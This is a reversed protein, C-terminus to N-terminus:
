AGAWSGPSGKAWCPTAFLYLRGAAPIMTSLEAYAFPRAPASIGGAVFSILIVAPGARDAGVGILTLIGTGVIAGVGLALLHPWSLTPKLRPGDHPALMADISRRRKWFAM